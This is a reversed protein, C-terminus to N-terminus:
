STQRGGAHHHEPRGRMEYHQWAARVQRAAHPVVVILPPALFRTRRRRSGGGRGQEMRAISEHPEPIIEDGSVLLGAEAESEALAALLEAQSPMPPTPHM